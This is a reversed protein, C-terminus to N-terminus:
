QELMGQPPPGLWASSLGQMSLLMMQRAQGSVWGGAAPRCEEVRGVPRRAVRREVLEDGRQRRGARGGSGSGGASRRSQRQEERLQRDLPVAVGVDGVAMEVGGDLRQAAVGRV